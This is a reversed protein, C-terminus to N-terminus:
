KSRRRARLILMAATLGAMGASITGGDIEPVAAADAAALVRAGMACVMLALGFGYLFIRKM